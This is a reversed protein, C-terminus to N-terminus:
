VFSKFFSCSSTILFLVCFQVAGLKTYESIKPLTVLYM